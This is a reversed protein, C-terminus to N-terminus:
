IVKKYEKQLLQLSKKYRLAVKLICLFVTPDNNIGFRVRRIYAPDKNISFGNDKAMEIVESSYARPLHDNLLQDKESAVPKNDDGKHMQM